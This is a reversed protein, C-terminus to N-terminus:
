NKRVYGKLAYFFQKKFLSTSIKSLFRFSKVTDAFDSKMKIMENLQIRMEIGMQKFLKETQENNLVLHLKEWFYYRVMSREKHYNLASKTGAKFNNTGYKFYNLAEQKYAIDCHNLLSIFFYWDGCYKFGKLKEFDVFTTLEKKFVMASTNNITCEYLLNEKIEDLGKRVYDQNWKHTSFIRNRFKKYSDYHIVNNVDVMNSDSFAVGIKENVQFSEMLVELFRSDAYDDSEAIWIYSGKALSLGKQWQIFPSGSNTENLIIHKVKPNSRYLGIVEKSRDTSCDDLIILEFDQYTQDLVSDIRKKLFDAHNYNPVIVSVM